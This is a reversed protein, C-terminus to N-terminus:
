RPPRPLPLQRSEQQFGFIPDPLPAAACTADATKGSKRSPLTGDALYKSVTKEVCRNGELSVAHGAEGEIALLRSRQFINRVTLSGSYPTPADLTGSVLLIPPVRKGKITFRKNPKAPWYRCPYNYWANAWTMLPAVSYTAWNDTAWISWKRPWPADTCQVSNYVAYGNDDGFTGSDRYAQILPQSRGRRVYQSFATALDEWTSTSYGVSLFIDIWEAPGIKGGAPATELQTQTETFTKNVEAGTAGLQYLSEYKAIWDFWLEFVKQFGVDQDLNAAYFARRPNVNSDFVQRRVRQPFLTSYTQGLYTGYSFGYFNIKSVGLAKRISEMDRASNVTSMHSLIKGNKRCDEAYGRTRQFWANRNETPIPFYNPRNFGFYNRDCRVAPRSAGVGRPDFGIWDYTKAVRNPLLSGLTSWPRGEGGPGGPNVLVVGQYGSPKVRNRVRSLALSITKGAPRSYDLPVRLKACDAGQSALFGSRCPRWSLSGVPGRNPDQEVTPALPIAAQRASAPAILLGAVFFGAVSIALIRKGM